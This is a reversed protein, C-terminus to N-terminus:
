PGPQTPNRAKELEWRAPFQDNLDVGRISAKWGSFDTSGNNLEIVRNRWTENEPPGNLVLSVGDPNVIPVISLSTQLYLPFTNLGRIVTQNTLPLCYDNIFTM